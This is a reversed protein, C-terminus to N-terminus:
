LNYLSGFKQRVYAIWPGAQVPGGTARETLEDPTFKRGHRHVRERLWDLLPGFEGAAVRADLDPLDRRVAEMLQASVLNGLPAPALSGAVVGFGLAALLIAALAQPDVSARALRTSSASRQNLHPLLSGASADCEPTRIALGSRM